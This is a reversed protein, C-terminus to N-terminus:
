CSNAHWFRLSVMFLTNGYEDCDLLSAKRNALLKQLGALDGDKCCVAVASYRFDPVVHYMQLSVDWRGNAQTMAITWVQRCVWPPITFRFLTQSNNYQRKKRKVTVTSVGTRNPYSDGAVTDGWQDTTGLLQGMPSDPIPPKLQQLVIANDASLRQLSSTHVAMVDAHADLRRSQEAFHYMHFAFAMSSKAQELEVLLTEIDHEKFAMYARGARGFRKMYVELKDVVEQIKATSRQCTQICRELLMTDHRDRVRHGELERLTLSMTELDFSLDLLIRPANKVTDCFGKLKKASDLLQIALSVLGAGSAVAGFVEAMNPFVICFAHRPLSQLASSSSPAILKGSKFTLSHPQLPVYM